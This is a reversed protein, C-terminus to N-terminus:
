VSCAAAAVAESCRDLMPSLLATEEWGEMQSQSLWVMTQEEPLLSCADGHTLVPKLQSPSTQNVGQSGNSDRCMVMVVVNGPTCPTLLHARQLGLHRCPFCVQLGWPSDPNDAMRGPPFEDQLLAPMQFGDSRIHGHNASVQTEKTM